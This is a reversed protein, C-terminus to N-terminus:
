LKWVITLLVNGLLRLRANVCICVTVSKKVAALQMQKSHHVSAKVDTIHFARSLNVMVSNCLLEQLPIPKDEFSEKKRKHSDRLSESYAKYFMKDFCNLFYLLTTLLQLLM